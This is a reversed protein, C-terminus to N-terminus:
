PLLDLNSSDLYNLYNNYLMKYFGIIFSILLIDEMEKYNNLYENNM